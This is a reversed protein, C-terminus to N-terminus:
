GPLPDEASKRLKDPLIVPNIKISAPLRLRFFYNEKVIIKFFGSNNNDLKLSPRATNWYKISLWMHDGV